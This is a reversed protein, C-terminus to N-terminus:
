RRVMGATKTSIRVAAGEALSDSPNEIVADNPTLGSLVEVASGYDQGITIPILVVHGNRVVGARLGESRFLLANSPITVSGVSAPVKLHVFAYAGPFLRGTRNDVDVEVNLTRTNLDIADSNRVITGTFEENPFADLTVKVSEGNRVNPAYVEPVPIYIRLKRISALHFLEKTSNDDAQILAGLDTNRATIVGDFPATIREFAQLQDLRDVNAKNSAVLAQKANLDSVAQDTEQQSVSNTKVLNQWRAATIQAIEFNAQATKLDARAQELQQDLEPTEILALLQRQKVHEGIDVYWDKVYGRTRAYIPTDNFAQANGPLAIEQGNAGSKPRVVEVVPVASARAVQDLNTAAAVRSHIGQFVGFAMLVFLVAAVMSLQRRTVPTKANASESATVHNIVPSHNVSSRDPTNM